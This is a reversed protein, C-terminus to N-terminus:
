AGAAYAQPAPERCYRRIRALVSVLLALAAMAVPGFLFAGVARQHDAAAPDASDIIRVRGGGKLGPFLYVPIVTAAPVLAQLEGQNRPVRKLYPLLDMWEKKGEVTGSAFVQPPGKTPQEFYVQIVRFSTAHYSQGQTHEWDTWSGMFVLFTFMLALAFAVCCLAIALSLLQAALPRRSPIQPESDGQLPFSRGSRGSFGGALFAALALIAVVGRPLHFTMTIATVLLAPVLARLWPSVQVSPAVKKGCQPCASEPFNDAEFGCAFCKQATAMREPNCCSCKCDAVHCCYSFLLPQISIKPSAATM